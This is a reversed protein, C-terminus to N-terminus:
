PELETFYAKIYDRLALPITGSDVIQNAAQLYQGFVQQYPVLAPTNAGPLPDQGERVQSDGQGTDQGPIFVEEGNSGSREFPVYVQDDLQGAAAQQGPGQPSGAQGQGQFPPLTDARTGGGGGPNQAQGPQQGQGGSQGPNQGQNQGQSGSQGQSSSQGNNGNQAVAQGQGAQAVQQRSAQLQALAQALAQQAALSQQAQSMAQATQQGAQSASQVDGTLAAQALASLAQALEHEGAQAAQAALDALSQAAAQQEASGMEGLQEALEQLSQELSSNESEEGTQAEALAQLQAALTELAASQQALEPNVRERLNEELRAFDALAEERDGPNEQLQRALEELQRALAEREEPTLADEQQLEEALAEIRRSQEELEAQVAAREQVVRDMPNPLFAMLVISALLVAAAILPRRQWTLTFAKHPTLRRAAILADAHQLQVLAESEATQGGTQSAELALATSLREKLAQEYDVRRAVRMASAPAILAWLLCMVLWIGLPLWTWLWLRTLPVFRGAIQVLGAALVALWLSRQALLAADRLRMWRGLRSLLRHLEDVSSKM